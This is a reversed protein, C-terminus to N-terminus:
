KIFWNGGDCFITVSDYQMTLEIQASGDIVSSVPAGDIIVKYSTSDIKKIDFIKSVGNKYCENADPLTVTINSSSCIVSVISQTLVM